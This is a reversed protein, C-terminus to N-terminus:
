RESVGCQDGGRPLLAPAARPPILRLSSKRRGPHRCIPSPPSTPERLGQRQLPRDSGSIPCEICQSLNGSASHGLSSKSLDGIRTPCVSWRPKAERPCYGRMGSDDNQARPQIELQVCQLVYPPPSTFIC